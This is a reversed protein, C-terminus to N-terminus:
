PVRAKVLRGWGREQLEWGELAEVGSGGRSWYQMLNGAADVQALPEEGDWIMQTTGSSDTRRHRLGDPRYSNTLDVAGVSSQQVQLLHNAADWSYTRLDTRAPSTAARRYYQGGIRM